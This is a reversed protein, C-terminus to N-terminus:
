RAMGMLTVFTVIALAALLAATREVLVQSLSPRRPEQRPSAAEPPLGRELENIEQTNERAIQWFPHTDLDYLNRHM